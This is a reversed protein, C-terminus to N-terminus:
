KMQLGPNITLLNVFCDLPVRTGRVNISELKRCRNVLFLLGNQTVHRCSWLSISKLHPCSNAIAYLSEDTIFTSGINLHQLATARAILKAVGQDTVGTMGLLSISTLKGACKTMSIRYLGEDTIHCGWCIKSIDLERLAYARRVVRATSDDDMKLGAFSLRERRGLSLKVARKWKRCVGSARALDAFSPIMFFVHALVDVPLRDIEAEQEEVEEEEERRM